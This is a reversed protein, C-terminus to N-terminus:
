TRSKATRLTVLCVWMTRSAQLRCIVSPTATAGQFPFKDFTGIPTWEESGLDIDDTLQIYKKAYTKGNNVSNRFMKLEDLSSILYPSASTGEGVLGTSFTKNESKAVSVTEGINEALEAIVKAETGSITASTAGAGFDLLIDSQQGNKNAKTDTFTCNNITLISSGGEVSSLVRIPAAYEFQPNGCNSFSCNSVWIEQMGAAKHNLNIPVSMNEFVVNSLTIKGNANSYVPSDKYLSGLFSCNELTINNSGSTGTLYVRNM